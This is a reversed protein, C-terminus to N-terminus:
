AYSGYETLEVCMALKASHKRLTALGILSIDVFQQGSDPLRSNSVDIMTNEELFIRVKRTLKEVEADM